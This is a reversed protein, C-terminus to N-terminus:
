VTGYPGPPIHLASESDDGELPQYPAFEYRLDDITAGVVEIESLDHPGIGYESAMQLHNLCYECPREEVSRATPDFGMVAAGVADTAAANKGAVLAGVVDEIPQFVDGLWPGEGGESTMVGDILVNPTGNVTAVIIVRLFPIGAGGSLLFLTHLPSRNGLEFQLSFGSAGKSRTDVEVSTLAEIVEYPAPAPVAPGVMLSLHIGKLM